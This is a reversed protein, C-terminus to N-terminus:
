LINSITHIYAGSCSLRSCVDSQTPQTPRARTPGDDDCAAFNVNIEDILAVSGTPEIM